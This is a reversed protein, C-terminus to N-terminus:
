MEKLDLDLDVVLEEEAPHDIEIGVEAVLRDLEVLEEEIQSDIQVEIVVIQLDTEVGAEAVLHDLEVLEEEIQSDIQVEIVVIQLGSWSGSGPSRAGGTRGRSPSRNWNGRSSSRIGASSRNDDNRKGWGFEKKIRLREVVPLEERTIKVNEIRLIKDFNEYDRSCLINIAKGEEGARATRGIRHVYDKIESPLDYNYVHSVNKIDLGRAAVDTCVLVGVGNGNFDDLVRKRQNQSLGGHIEKAHIGANRLNMAVFDVNRRTSCFVMVLKSDEKKLLHFLLSFKLQDPVDYYIQELKSHDVYSKVAIEKADKTHKKALHDIENSITASFLMTQREKPCQQIIKEVDKHFGMDFMRDVEDLVLIKIKNLKLTKRKLHDLIRGPTGVVVETRNLKRIQPEIAIGGYVALIELKKGESFKKISEAVQEALERTPTLILAQVGAKTKLNEIIPSAFALTKGSGTASGGIIDKGALALPITKEQIETPETIGVNDLTKLVERSLGLKEFKEM